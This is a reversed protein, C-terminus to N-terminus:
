KIVLAIKNQIMRLMYIFVTYFLYNVFMNNVKVRCLENQACKTNKESNELKLTFINENVKLTKLQDTIEHNVKQLDCFKSQLNCKETTIKKLKECQAEFSTLQETFTKEREIDNKDRWQEFQKVSELLTNRETVVENYMEFKKEYDCLKENQAAITNKMERITGRSCNQQLYICIFVPNHLISM